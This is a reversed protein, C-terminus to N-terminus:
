MCPYLNVRSAKHFRPSTVFICVLLEGTMFPFGIERIELLPNIKDGVSKLNRLPTERSKRLPKNQGWRKEQSSFHCNPSFRDHAFPPPGFVEWLHRMTWDKLLSLIFGIHRVLNSGRYKSFHGKLHQEFFLFVLEISRLSHTEDEFSDVFIFLEERCM